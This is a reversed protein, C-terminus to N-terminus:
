AKGKTLRVANMHRDLAQSLARMIRRNAAVGQDANRSARAKGQATVPGTSRTWPAWDRIAEAQRARREPTWTM